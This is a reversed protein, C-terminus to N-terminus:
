RVRLPHAFILDYKGRFVSPIGNIPLVPFADLFDQLVQAAVFPYLDDLALHHCVMYV